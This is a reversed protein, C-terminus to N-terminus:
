PCLGRVSFERGSLHSEALCPFDGEEVKDDIDQMTRLLRHGM